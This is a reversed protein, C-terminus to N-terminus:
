PDAGATAPSPPDRLGGLKMGWGKLMAPKDKVGMLFVFPVNEEMTDWSM